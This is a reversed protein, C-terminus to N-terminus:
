LIQDITHGFHIIKPNRAMISNWDEKLLKNNSYGNIYQPPEVDGVFCEGCDLILAIGDPSHSNTGIIEGDIGIKSLFQRSESISIVIANSENIPNYKGKFQRNLIEDSYHIYKYQNEAIILKIGQEILTSVLGMHDPHYHSCMVYKMDCLSLDNQKIAKYFMNLTGPMDTDFLLGNIFYTNTNGYNLKIIGM